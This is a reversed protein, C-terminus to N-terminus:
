LAVELRPLEPHKDHHEAPCNENVSVERTSKRADHCLLSVAILGFEEGEIRVIEKGQNAVRGEQHRGQDSHYPSQNNIRSKERKSSRSAIAQRRGTPRKYSNESYDVTPREGRSHKTKKRIM